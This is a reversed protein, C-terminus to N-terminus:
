ATGNKGGKLQSLRRAADSVMLIWETNKEMNM